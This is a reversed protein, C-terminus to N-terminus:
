QSAECRRIKSKRTRKLIDNRAFVTAIEEILFVKTFGVQLFSMMM